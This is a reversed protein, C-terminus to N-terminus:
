GQRVHVKMRDGVAEFRRPDGVLTGVPTVDSIAEPDVGRSVPTPGYFICLAHGEPWYAVEGAKLVKRGNEIKNKVPVEFYIEDGWANTYGEFPAALWLANATDSDNLEVEFDHEGILILLRNVM